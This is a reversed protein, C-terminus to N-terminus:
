QIWGDYRRMWLELSFPAFIERYWISGGGVPQQRYREYKLRLAAGDM